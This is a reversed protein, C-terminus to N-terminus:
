KGGYGSANKRRGGRARLLEKATDFPRAILPHPAIYGPLARDWGDYAEGLM